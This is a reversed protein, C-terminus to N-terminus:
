LRLQPLLWMDDLSVQDGNTAATGIFGKCHVFPACHAFGIVIIIFDLTEEAPLTLSCNRMLGKIEPHGSLQLLVVCNNNGGTVTNDAKKALVCVCM